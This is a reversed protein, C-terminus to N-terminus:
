KWFYNAEYWVVGYNKEFIDLFCKLYIYISLLLVEMWSSAQYTKSYFFKRMYVFVRTSCSRLFSHYKNEDIPLGSFLVRHQGLCYSSRRTSNISFVSKQYAADHRRECWPLTPSSSCVSASSLERAQSGALRPAQSRDAPRTGPLAM